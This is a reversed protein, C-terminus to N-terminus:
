GHAIRAALGAVLVDTLVGVVDVDDVVATVEHM